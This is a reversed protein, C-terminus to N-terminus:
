CAEEDPAGDDEATPDYNESREKHVKKVGDESHVLPVEVAKKAEAPKRLTFFAILGVVVLLGLLIWLWL